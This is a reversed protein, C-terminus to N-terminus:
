RDKKRPKNSTEHHHHRLDVNGKPREVKGSEGRNVSEAIGSGFCYDNEPEDAEPHHEHADHPDEGRGNMFRVHLM